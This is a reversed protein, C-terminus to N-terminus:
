EVSGKMSHWQNSPAWNGGGQATRYIIRQLIIKYRVDFYWALNKCVDPTDCYKYLNDVDYLMFPYRIANCSRYRIEDCLEREFESDFSAGNLLEMSKKFLSVQRYLDAKILVPLEFMLMRRVIMFFRPYDNMFNSNRAWFNRTYQSNFIKVLSNCASLYQSDTMKNRQEMECFAYYAQGFDKFCENINAYYMFQSENNVFENYPIYEGTFLSKKAFTEKELVQENSYWSMYLAKFPTRRFEEGDYATKLSSDNVPKASASEQKKFFLNSFWSM